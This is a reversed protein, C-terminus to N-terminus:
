KRVASPYGANGTAQTLAQPQAEDPDYTVTATKKDFDVKVTRVGTVRKLSKTVTIPCLDCTMNQVDLTVTEPAGALAALPLAALVTMLLKRM